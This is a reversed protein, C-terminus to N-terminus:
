TRRQPQVADSVCVGLTVALACAALVIPAVHAGVPLLAILILVAVIRSWPRVRWLYAKFVAHGGIFLATGGLM